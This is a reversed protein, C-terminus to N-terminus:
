LVGERKLTQEVILKKVAGERHRTSVGEFWEDSTPKKRAEARAKKVKEFLAPDVKELLRDYYPPPIFAGRGPLAVIDGPYIDTQWKEFHGKGLGNSSRQFEPVRDGYHNPADDGTVKKLLYRAVYAASEFTLASFRHIGYQWVAQIDSHTFQRDGSRAPEQVIRGKDESFVDFPGFLALHYHPREKKEGYEGCAFYKIKGKGYYSCRARLDKIFTTLHSPNLSRNEPLHEDDYTLTLFCSKEHLKAEHM